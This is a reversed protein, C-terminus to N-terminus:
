RNTGEEPLSSPLPAPTHESRERAPWTDGFASVHVRAPQRCDCECGWPRQDARRDVCGWCQGVTCDSCLRRVDSM